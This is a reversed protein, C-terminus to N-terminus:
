SDLLDAVRLALYCNYGTRTIMGRIPLGCNIEKAAAPFPKARSERPHSLFALRWQPVFSTEVTLGIPSEPVWDGPIVRGQSSKLALTSGNLTREKQNLSAPITSWRTIWAGDKWRLAILVVETPFLEYALRRAVLQEDVDFRLAFGPILHLAILGHPLGKTTETYIKMVAARPLLLAAGFRNCLFEITPDEGFIQQLPSIPRPGIDRSNDLWLTHGIEHALAFRLRTGVISQKYYIIFKRDGAPVLSAIRPLKSQMPMIRDIRCEQLLRRTLRVVGPKTWGLRALRSSREEIWELLDSTGIREALDKLLDNRILASQVVPTRM